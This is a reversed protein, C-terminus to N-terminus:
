GLESIHPVEPPPRPFWQILNEQELYPPPSPQNCWELPGGKRFSKAWMANSGHADGLHGFGGPTPERRHENGDQYTEVKERTMLAILEEKTAACAVPQVEESHATRMDNLLLVWWGPELQM